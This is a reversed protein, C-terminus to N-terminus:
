LVFVTLGLKVSPIIAKIRLPQAQISNDHIMPQVEATMQLYSLGGRLFFAVRRPSGVEFGLHANEFDYGVDFANNLNPDNSFRRAISSADGPFFHGAELTLTPTFWSYFPLLTLGGRLGSNITNNIYGGQLRLWTSPRYALSIGAGDPLGADVLLGLFTPQPGSPEQTVVVENTPAAVPNSGVTSTAMPAGSATALPPSPYPPYRDWGEPPIFFGGAPPDGASLERPQKAGRGAAWM